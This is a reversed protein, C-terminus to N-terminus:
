FKYCTIIIAFNTYIETIIKFRIGIKHDLVLGEYQKKGSKKWVEVVKALQQIRIHKLPHFGPTQIHNNMIHEASEGSFVIGIKRNRFTIFGSDFYQVM